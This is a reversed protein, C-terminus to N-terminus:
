LREQLAQALADRWRPITHKFDTEFDACNLVSYAPRPAPAGFDATSVAKITPSMNVANFIARAFEAWSVPTGTNTVHYLKSTQPINQLASLCAEALHGAYTPRGTQDNVISLTDHTQALRLMTTLFNAGTGDYVWSTRLILSRGGAALVGDEGKAKTFGYVNLPNTEDNPEYPSQKKGDFVYDTSFHVFPVGRKACLRAMETPAETNLNQAATQETEAKDVHTFAACNIVANYPREAIKVNAAKPDQILDIDNSDVSEFSLGRSSLARTLARAVQGNKGIILYSM